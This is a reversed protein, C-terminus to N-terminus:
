WCTKSPNVVGAKTKSQKQGTQSLTMTWCTEDSDQSKGVVPTASLTFCSDTCASVDVSITYYGEESTTGGLDAMSASFKNHNTYYRQQMMAGKTLASYVDARRTKQLSANYSPLAVAAIIGIIAVAILLEILTFGKILKM